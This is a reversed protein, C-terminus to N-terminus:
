SPLHECTFISILCSLTVGTAITLPEQAQSKSRRDRRATKTPPVM